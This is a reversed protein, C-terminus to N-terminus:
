EVHAEIQKPAPKAGLQKVERLVALFAEAIQPNDLPASVVISRSVPSHGGLAQIHKAADLRDRRPAEPDVMVEVQVKTAELSWHDALQEPTEFGGTSVGPVEPKELPEGNPKVNRAKAEIELTARWVQGGKTATNKNWGRLTNFSIGSARSAQMYSGGELITHAAIKIAAAFKEPTKRLEAMPISM